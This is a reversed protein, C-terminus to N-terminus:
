TITVAIVGQPGDGHQNPSHTPEGIKKIFIVGQVITIEWTTDFSITNIQSGEDQWGISLINTESIGYYEVHGVINKHGTGRHFYISWNRIDPIKQNSVKEESKTLTYINDIAYNPQKTYPTGGCLEITM